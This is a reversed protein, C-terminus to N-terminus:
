RKKKNKKKVLDWNLVKRQLKKSMGAKLAPSLRKRNFKQTGPIAGTLDENLELFFMLYRASRPPVRVPFGVLACDAGDVGDGGSFPGIQLDPRLVKGKGYNVLTVVPDGFTEGDSDGVIGWRDKRNFRVDGNSTARVFTTSDSGYETDLTIRRRVAKRKKTNQLKVLARLTPSGPLGRDIRTVKLGELRRPGARVQQGTLDAMGGPLTFPTDGVYLVLAGDFADSSAGISGDEVSYFADGSSSSTGDTCGYDFGYDFTADGGAEVDIDDLGTPVALAVATFTLAVVATLGVAARTAASRM